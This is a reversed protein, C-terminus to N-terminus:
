NQKSSLIALYNILLWFFKPPLYKHKLSLRSVAVYAHVQISEILIKNKVLSYVEEVSIRPESTTMGMEERELVQLVSLFSLCVMKCLKRKNLSM